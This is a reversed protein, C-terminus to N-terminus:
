AYWQDAVGLPLWGSGGRYLHWRVACGRDYFKADMLGTTGANYHNYSSQYSTGLRKVQLKIYSFGGKITHRGKIWTVNDDFTFNNSAGYGQGGRAYTNGLGAIDCKRSSQGQVRRLCVVIDSSQRGALARRLSVIM